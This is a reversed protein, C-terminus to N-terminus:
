HVCLGILLPPTSVTLGQTDFFPAYCFLQNQKCFILICYNYQTIVFLEIVTDSIMWASPM